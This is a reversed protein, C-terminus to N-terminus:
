GRDRWHLTIEFVFRRKDIQDGPSIHDKMESSRNLSRVTVLKHPDIAVARFGHHIRPFLM